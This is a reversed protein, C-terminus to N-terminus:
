LCMLSYSFSLSSERVFCVFLKAFIWSICDRLVSLNQQFFLLMGLLVIDVDFGVYGRGDLSYPSGFTCLGFMGSLGITLSMCSIESGLVFV